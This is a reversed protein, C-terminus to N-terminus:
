DHKVERFDVGESYYGNSTGYWRITVYGKATALKYFTWTWSTDTYSLSGDIHTRAETKDSEAEEAQLIPSGILDNINGCVDDISVSECCNQSHYMEFVRGDSSKFTISDDGVIVDILTLGLLDSVSEDVWKGDKWAM